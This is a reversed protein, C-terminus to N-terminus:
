SPIDKESWALSRSDLRKAERSLRESAHDVGAYRTSLMARERGKMPNKERELNIRLLFREATSPLPVEVPESREVWM